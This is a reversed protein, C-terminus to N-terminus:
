GIYNNGMNRLLLINEEIKKCEDCFRITFNPELKFWEGMLNGELEDVKKSKNLRHLITEIKSYMKTKYASVITIKLPSSTQFTAVRKKPNNSFGIKYFDTGQINLLYVYKEM